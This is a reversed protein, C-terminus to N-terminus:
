GNQHTLLTRLGPVLVIQQGEAGEIAVGDGPNGSLSITNTKSNLVAVTALANSM